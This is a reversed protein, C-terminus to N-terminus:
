KVVPPNLMEKIAEVEKKTFPLWAFKNIGNKFNSIQEDFQSSLQVLGDVLGQIKPMKSFEKGEHLSARAMSVVGKLENIMLHFREINKRHEEESDGVKKWADCFEQFLPKEEITKELKGVHKQVVNLRCNVEEVEVLVECLKDFIDDITKDM